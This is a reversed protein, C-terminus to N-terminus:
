VASYECGYLGILSIAISLPALGVLGFAISGITTVVACTNPKGGEINQMKELNLTKM